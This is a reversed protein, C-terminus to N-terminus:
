AGSCVSAQLSDWIVSLPLTVSDMRVPPLSSRARLMQQLHSQPLIELEDMSLAASDVRVVNDHQVASNLEFTAFITKMIRSMWCILAITTIVLVFNSVEPSPVLGPSSDWSIANCPVALAACICAVKLYNKPKPWRIPMPCLLLLLCSPPFPCSSYSAPTRCTGFAWNFRRKIVALFAALLGYFWFWNFSTTTTTAFAPSPFHACPVDAAAAAAANAAPALLKCTKPNGQV